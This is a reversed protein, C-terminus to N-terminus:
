GISILEPPNADLYEITMHFMINEQSFGKKRLIFALRFGTPAIAVLEGDYIAVYHYPYEELLEDYHETLYASERNLQGLMELAKQKVDEPIDPMDATSM